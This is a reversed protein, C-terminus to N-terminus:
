RDQSIFYVKFFIDTRLIALRDVVPVHHLYVDQKKNSRQCAQKHTHITSMTKDNSRYGQTVVQQKWVNEVGDQHDRNILWSDFNHNDQCANRTIHLMEWPTDSVSFIIRHFLFNTTGM